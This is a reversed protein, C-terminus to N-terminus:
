EGRTAGPDFRYFVWPETRIYHTGDDAVGLKSRLNLLSHLFDAQRVQHEGWRSRLRTRPTVVRKPHGVLFVLLDFEESTLEVEHDRLTVRRSDLDLHFDGAEIIEPKAEEQPHRLLRGLFLGLDRLHVASTM